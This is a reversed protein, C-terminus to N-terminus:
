ANLSEQKIGFALPTLNMFEYWVRSLEKNSCGALDVIYNRIVLGSDSCVQTTSHPGVNLQNVWLKKWDLCEIPQVSHWERWEMMADVVVLVM